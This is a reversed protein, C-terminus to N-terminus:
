THTPECASPSAISQPRENVHSVQLCPEAPLQVVPASGQPTVHLVTALDQPGQQDAREPESRHVVALSLTVGELPHDGDISQDSTYHIQWSTHRGWRSEVVTACEDSFASDRCLLCGGCRECPM